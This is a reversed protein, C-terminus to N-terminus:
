KAPARGPESLAREILRAREHRRATRAPVGRRKAGGGRRKGRRKGRGRGGVAKHSSQLGVRIKRRCNTLLGQRSLCRGRVWVGVSVWVGVGVCGGRWGRQGEACARGAGQARAPGIVFSMVWSKQELSSRRQACMYRESPWSRRVGQRRRVFGESGLRVRVRVEARVSGRACVPLRDANCGSAAQRPPPPPGLVLACARSLRPLSRCVIRFSIDSVGHFVSACSGGRTCVASRAVRGEGGACVACVGCVGCVAEPRLASCVQRVCAAYCVVCM